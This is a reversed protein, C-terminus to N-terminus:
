SALKEPARCLVNQDAQQVEFARTGQSMIVFDFREQELALWGEAYSPVIRVDNGYGQLIAAYYKLDGPDEDVLLVKRRPISPNNLAPKSIEPIM